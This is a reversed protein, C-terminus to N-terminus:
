QNKKRVYNTLRKFVYIHKIGEFVFGNLNFVNVMNNDLHIDTDARM